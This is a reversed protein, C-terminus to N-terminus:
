FHLPDISIISIMYSYYLQKEQLDSLFNNPIINSDMERSRDTVGLGDLLM